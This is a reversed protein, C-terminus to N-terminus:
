KFGNEFFKKNILIEKIDDNNANRATQFIFNGRYKGKVLKFFKKYDWNGKGLRVTNGNLVRDKIHINKVYKWYKIEDEFNYNLAASNGTDYNIGIRESKFKKVFGIIQDPHYDTEFLIKSGKKLLKLLRKIEKILVKEENLSNISANDVLPFIHYKVGLKNGNKIIKKLNKIILFKIKFNKKKFFPKQMFYDYTISPISIRFKKIMKKVIELDGNFFPNKDLNEYNITWEMIRFKNKNGIVFEKAWNKEPFYQITNKKESNILRGQM